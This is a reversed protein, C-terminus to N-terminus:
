TRNLLSLQSVWLPITVHSINPLFATSVMLEVPFVCRLKASLAQRDKNGETGVIVSGKEMVDAENGAM